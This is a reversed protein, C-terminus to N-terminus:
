RGLHQLTRMYATHALKPLEPEGKQAQEVLASAAEAPASDGPAALSQPYLGPGYGAAEDGGQGAAQEALAAMVEPDDPDYGMQRLAEAYAGDEALKRLALSYAEDYVAGLKERLLNDANGNNRTGAETAANDAAAKHMATIASAGFIEGFLRAEKSLADAHGNVAELAIDKLAQAADVIDDKADVADKKAQDLKRAADVVEDAAAALASGGPELPTEEADAPPMIPEAGSDEEATKRTRAANFDALIQSLTPSTRTTSVTNGKKLYPIRASSAAWQFIAFPCPSNEPSFASFARLRTM